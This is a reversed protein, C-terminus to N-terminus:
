FNCSILMIKSFFTSASKDTSGKYLINKSNITLPKWTLNWLHDEIDRKKLLAALDMFCIVFTIVDTFWKRSIKETIFVNGCWTKRMIWSCSKFLTVPLIYLIDYVTDEDYDGSSEFDSMVSAFQLIMKLFLLLKM